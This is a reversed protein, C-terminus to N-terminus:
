QPHCPSEPKVLFQSCEDWQPPVIWTPFQGGQIYGRPDYQLWLSQEVEDPEQLDNEAEEMTQTNSSESQAADM